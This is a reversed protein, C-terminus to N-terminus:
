IGAQVGGRAYECGGGEERYFRFIDCYQGAGNGGRRAAQLQGLENGQGNALGFRRLVGRM